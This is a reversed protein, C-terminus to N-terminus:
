QWVELHNVRVVTRKVNLQLIELLGCQSLTKEVHPVDAAALTDFAAHLRQLLYFRYPMVVSAITRGRWTFEAMGLSRAAPDDLGNRGALLAPRQALWANACNVHAQLESFYDEAIYSFLTILSPFQAASSFLGAPAKQAVSDAINDPTNM